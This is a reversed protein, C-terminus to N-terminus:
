LLGGSNRYFVPSDVYIDEYKGDKVSIIRKISGPNDARDLLVAIDLVGSAILPTIQKRLFAEELSQAHVSMIVAVGCNLANRVAIAEKVSGIEDFVVVDPCLSRCAMIIGDEKSCGGIVDTNAGVDMSPKGNHLGALEGREDAISVRKGLVSLNRAIERLLSTKGGGPPSVILASKVGGNYIYPFVTDACGFHEHAIRICISYISNLRYQGDAFSFAGSIGARNGDPLSIYGESIQDEYAYVSHRTIGLFCQEVESDTCIHAREPTKLLFASNGIYFNKGKVVACLAQGKRLRIENIRMLEERNLGSILLAINSDLLRQINNIKRM